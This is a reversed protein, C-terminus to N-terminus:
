NADVVNSAGSVEVNLTPNGRYHVSSAGSARGSLEDAVMVKLNSAGSVNVSATMVALGFADVDSAGSVDATLTTASSNALQLNSAGSADIDLNTMDIFGVADINSAGSAEIGALTPMTIIVTIDTERYNGPAMKLVLEGGSVTTEVRDILNDNARVTVSTTAGFTVEANLAESIDIKDFAAIDRVEAVITDSGIFLENKECAAFFTVLATAVLSLFFRTM